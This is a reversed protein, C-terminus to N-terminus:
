WPSQLENTGEPNSTLVGIGIALGGVFLTAASDVPRGIRTPSGPAELVRTTEWCFSYRMLKGVKSLPPKDACLAFYLRCLCDCILFQRFHTLRTSQLLKFLNVFLVLEIRCSKTHDVLPKTRTEMSFHFSAASFLPIIECARKSFRNFM